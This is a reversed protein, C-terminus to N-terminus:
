VEGGCWGEAPTGDIEAEGAGLSLDLEGSWLVTPAAAEDTVVRELRVPVVGEPLGEVSLRLDFVCMCLCRGGLGEPADTETVVYVGDVLEMSLTRDGCCNLLARLDTLELTETQADYTWDLLEAACYDDGYEDGGEGGASVTGSGEFGGCDSIAQQQTLLGPDAPDADMCALGVAGIMAVVVMTKTGLKMM